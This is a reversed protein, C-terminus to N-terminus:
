VDSKRVFRNQLEEREAAELEAAAADLEERLRKVLSLSTTQSLQAQYRANAQSHAERARTLRPVDLHPMPFLDDTM